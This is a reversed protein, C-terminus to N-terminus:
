AAVSCACSFPANAYYKSKQRYKYVIYGILSFGEIIKGYRGIVRAGMGAFPHGCYIQFSM